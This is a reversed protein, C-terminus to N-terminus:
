RQAFHFRTWHCSRRLAPQFVTRAANLAAARHDGRGPRLRRPDDRGVRPQRAHVERLGRFRWVVTLQRYGLGEFLSIWLLYSGTRWAGTARPLDVAGARADAGDDGAVFGYAVLVFLLAFAVNVVGLVLGLVVALLGVIEVVPASCSSSCSTRSRWWASRGTARTSSWGATGGCCTPWGATGATASARRARAAVRAGRDLRGPGPRVRRPRGARRARRPPADAGGAGHGRGRDRAPLRRRRDDARPPLPRVRGLHDLNGGLRNWGLRGVLFARLYEVAQLAPWRGARRARRRHRARRAVECGNVVRITGGAALM